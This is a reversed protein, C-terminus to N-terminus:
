ASAEMAPPSRLLYATWCVATFLAQALRASSNAPAAPHPTTAARESPLHAALRWCPRPREGAVCNRKQLGAPPARRLVCQLQRRGTSLQAPRCAGRCRSICGRQCTSCGRSRLARGAPRGSGPLQQLPCACLKRACEELQLGAPWSMLQLSCNCVKGGGMYYHM